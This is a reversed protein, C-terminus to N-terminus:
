PDGAKGAQPPGARRARWWRRFVALLAVDLLLAGLGFVIRGVTEGPAHGAVSLVGVAVGGSFHRTGPGFAIWHAIASLSLFVVAGVTRAALSNPGLQAAYPACAGALFALGALALVAHPAEDASPQTPLLGLAVAELMLGAGLFALAFM